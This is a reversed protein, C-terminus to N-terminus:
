EEALYYVCFPVNKTLTELEAQLDILKQEKEALKQKVNESKGILTRHHSLDIIHLFRSTRQWYSKSM